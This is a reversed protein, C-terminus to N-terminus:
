YNKDNKALKVTKVVMEDEIKSIQIEIKLHDSNSLSHQNQPHRLLIFKIKLSIERNNEIDNIIM